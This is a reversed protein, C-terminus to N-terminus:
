CRQRGHGVGDSVSGDGHRNRRARGNDQRRERMLRRLAKVNFGKNKADEYAARVDASAGTRNEELKEIHEVVAALQANIM